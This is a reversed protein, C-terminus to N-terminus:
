RVDYRRWYRYFLFKSFNNLYFIFLLLNKLFISKAM